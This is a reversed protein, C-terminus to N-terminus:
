RRVAVVNFPAHGDGHVVAVFRDRSQWRMTLSGTIGRDNFRSHVVKGDGTACGAMRAVGGFYTSRYYRAHQSCPRGGLAEVAARGEHEGVSRIAITRGDSLTWRGSFRDPVATSRSGCAAVLSAVGILAAIRKM